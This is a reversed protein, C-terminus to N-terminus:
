YRIVSCDCAWWRRFKKFDPIGRVRTVYCFNIAHWDEDVSAIGCVLITRGTGFGLGRFSFVAVSGTGVACHADDQEFLADSAAAAAAAAPVDNSDDRICANSCSVVGVPGVPIIFDGAGLFRAFSVGVCPLNENENECKVENM